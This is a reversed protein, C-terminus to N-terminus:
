SLSVNHSPFSVKENEIFYTPQESEIKKVLFKNELKNEITGEGYKCHPAAKRQRISGSRIAESCELKVTTLDIYSPTDL